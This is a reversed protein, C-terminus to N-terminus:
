IFPLWGRNEVSPGIVLVTSINSQDKQNLFKGKLEVFPYKDNM